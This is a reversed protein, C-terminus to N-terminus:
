EQHNVTTLFQHFVRKGGGRGRGGCLFVWNYELFYDFWSKIKPKPNEVENWRWKERNLTSHLLIFINKKEKRGGGGGLANEPLNCLLPFSFSCCLLMNFRVSLCNELTLSMKYSLQFLRVLEKRQRELKPSNLVFFSFTNSPFAFDYAGTRNGETVFKALLLFLFVNPILFTFFLGNRFHLSFTM